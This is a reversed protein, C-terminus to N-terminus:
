RSTFRARAEDEAELEALHSEEFAEQAVADLAIRVPENAAARAAIRVRERAYDPDVAALAFAAGVRRQSPARPDDLVKELDERPIRHARFDQAPKALEALARRWTALDRGARDLSGLDPGAEVVGLFGAELRRYLVTIQEETQGIVPLEVKEGTHLHLTLTAGERSVGSLAAYPVFRTGGYHIRVGDAGTVVRPDNYRRFWALLVLAPAVLFLWGWVMNKPSTAKALALGLVPGVTLAIFARTFGGVTGRLPLSLTAHAQAVGARSLLETREEHDNMAVFFREGDHTELVVHEGQEWGTALDDLAIAISREENGITLKESSVIVHTRGRPGRQIYTSLKVAVAFGAGLALLGPPGGSAAVMLGAVAIAVGVFM